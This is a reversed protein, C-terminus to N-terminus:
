ITNTWSGKLGRSKNLAKVAISILQLYQSWRDTLYALPKPVDLEYFASDVLEVASKWEKTLDKAGKNICKELASM